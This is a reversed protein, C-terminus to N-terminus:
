LQVERVSAHAAMWKRIDGCKWATVRASLKSPAPFTGSRVGRWLTAASFPLPATSNPRKPSRVLQSERLLASDPLADFVSQSPAEKTPLPSTAQGGRKEFGNPTNKRKLRATTHSM